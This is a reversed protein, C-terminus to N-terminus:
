RLSELEQVRKELLAMRQILQRIDHSQWSVIYTLSMCIGLLCVIGAIFVFNSTLEVGAIRAVAGILNPFLASILVLVGVLLWMLSYKLQLRNKSVMHIVIALFVLSFAILLIRLVISM